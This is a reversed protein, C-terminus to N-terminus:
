VDGKFTSHISSCNRSRLLFLDVAARSATSVFLEGPPGRRGNGSWRLYRDDGLGSHQAKGFTAVVPLSHRILSHWKSAEAAPLKHFAICTCAGVWGIASSTALSPFWLALWWLARLLRMTLIASNVHRASCGCRLAACRVADCPVDCAVIDGGVRLSAWVEGLWSYQRRYRRRTRALQRPHIRSNSIFLLPRLGCTAALLRGSFCAM